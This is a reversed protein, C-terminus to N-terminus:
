EVYYKGKSDKYWKPSSPSPYVVSTSEMKQLAEFSKYLNMMGFGWLNNPTIAGNPKICGSVLIDRVAQTNLEPLNGRVIGWELLLASAGAAIAASISSGTLERLGTQTSGIVSVGPAVFLPRTKDARSPGRSTDFYINQDRANYAGVPIINFATAPVTVTYDPSPTLFYSGPKIFGTIPLWAHVKGNFISDGNLTITWIGPTPAILKILILNNDTSQYANEYQVFITTQEKILKRKYISGSESPINQIKEGTPSTISISIADAIFYWISFSMASENEDVRVDLNAKDGTRKINVLAHHRSAGENGNAVTLAVGNQTSLDDLYQEFFTSGDHPGFNSGLGICIAIPKKLQLAKDILYSIGTIVDTSQYAISQYEEAIEFVKLENIKANKLKVAVIEANPAAGISTVDVKRGAAIAALFTGHGNEDKSPVIEYPNNSNLARNIQEKTYETGYPCGDITEGSDITQDWIYRIKSTNDEYVFSKNTYDIGTDVIGVLVGNGLLDLAPQMQVRTIGSADMSIKNMLGLIISTEFALKDKFNTYFQEM